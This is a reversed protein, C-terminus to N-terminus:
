PLVLPSNDNIEELQGLYELIADSVVHAYVEPYLRTAVDVKLLAKEIVDDLVLRQRDNHVGQKYGHSRTHLDKQVSHDKRASESSKFIASGRLIINNAM